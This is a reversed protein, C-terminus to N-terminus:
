PKTKESNIYIEIIKLSFIPLLLESIIKFRTETYFTFCVIFGCLWPLLLFLLQKKFKIFEKNKRITILIGISILFLTFVIGRYLQYLGNGIVLTWSLRQDGIIISKSDNSLYYEGPLKPTKQSTFIYSDVKQMQALFIEKPNQMISEKAAKNFSEPSEGLNYPNTMHGGKSLFVDMDFLPLSLYLYKNYSFYSTMGSEDAIRNTGYTINNYVLTMLLIMIPAFHILQFKKHKIFGYIIFIGSVSLYFVWYAPRCLNLLLGSVIFYGYKKGMLFYISLNLLLYEFVTDQSTYILWVLYPNAMLSSILITRLYRNEIIQVNKLFFYTGVCYYTFAAYFLDIKLITFPLIMLASGAPYFNSSPIHGSAIEKAKPIWNEIGLPLDSAKKVLILYFLTFIVVFTKENLMLTKIKM